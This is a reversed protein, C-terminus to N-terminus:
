NDAAPRSRVLGTLCIGQAIEQTQFPRFGHKVYLKTAPINATGTFVVFEKHSGPYELVKSLLKSAIGKRFHDPDVMMRCVKMKEGQIAFSVAGLLTEAKDYYGVFSEGSAQLSPISDYLPPVERFGIWEAEVLYAAAQLNLISIANRQDQINVTRMM